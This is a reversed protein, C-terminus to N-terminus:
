GMYLGGNVDITAGTMYSNEPDLLFSVCISIEDPRAARGLPVAQQTRSFHEPSMRASMQSKVLGPCVCNVLIGNPALAKALGRALGVLGAKSSSYGVDGSGLQAAASSILVIRAGESLENRLQSIIQFASKLNVSQVEDWLDDSYSTLSVIPYVGACHIFGWFPAHKSTVQKLINSLEDSQTLDTIFFDLFSSVAIPAVKDFGIVDYGLSTLRKVIATGIDGAAGTVIVSRKM